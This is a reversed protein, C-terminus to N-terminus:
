EAQKKRAELIARILEEPTEPVSVSPDEGLAAALEITSRYSSLYDVCYPCEDLHREFVEREAEPLAGELYDAIFAILEKCTV